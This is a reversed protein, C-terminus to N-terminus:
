RAPRRVLVISTERSSVFMLIQEVGLGLKDNGDWYMWVTISPSTAPGGYVKSSDERRTRVPPGLREILDRETPLGRYELAIRALRFPARAPPDYVLTIRKLGLTEAQAEYTFTPNFVGSAKAPDGWERLVMDPSQFKRVVTAANTVVAYFDPSDQKSKSQAWGVIPALSTVLFWVLLLREHRTM